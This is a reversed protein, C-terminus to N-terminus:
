WSLRCNVIFTYAQPYRDDIMVSASALFRSWAALQRIAPPWSENLIYDLRPM